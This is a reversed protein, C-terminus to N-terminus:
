PLRRDRGIPPRSAQPKTGPDRSWPLSRMASADLLQMRAAIAQGVSASSERSADNGASALMEIAMARIAAAVEDDILFEALQRNGLKLVQVWPLAKRM